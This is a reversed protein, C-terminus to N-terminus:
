ATEKSPKDKRVNWVLALSLGESKWPNLFYSNENKGVKYNRLKYDQSGKEYSGLHILPGSQM